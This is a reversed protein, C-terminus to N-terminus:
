MLTHRSIVRHVIKLNQPHSKVFAKCCEKCTTPSKHKIGEEAIGLYNGSENGIGNKNENEKTPEKEEESDMVPTKSCVTVPDTPEGSQGEDM